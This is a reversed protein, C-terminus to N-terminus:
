GGDGAARADPGFSDYVAGPQGTALVIKSPPTGGMLFASLAVLAITLALSLTANAGGKSSDNM